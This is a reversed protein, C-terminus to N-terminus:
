LTVRGDGAPMTFRLFGGNALRTCVVALTYYVLLLFFTKLEGSLFTGPSLAFPGQAGFRALDGGGPVPGGLLTTDGFVLAVAVDLLTCVAALLPGLRWFRASMKERRTSVVRMAAWIPPLFTLVLRLLPLTILPYLADPLAGPAITGLLRAVAYIALGEVIARRMTTRRWLRSQRKSRRRLTEAQAGRTEPTQEPRMTDPQM